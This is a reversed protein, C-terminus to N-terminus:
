TSMPVASSLWAIVRPVDTYKGSRTTGMSGSTNDFPSQESFGRTSLSHTTHSMLTSASPLTFFALKM